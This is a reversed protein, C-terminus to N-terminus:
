GALGMLTLTLTQPTLIRLISFKKATQTGCVRIKSLRVQVLGLVELASSFCFKRLKGDWDQLVVSRGYIGAHIEMFDTIGTQRTPQTTSSGEVYHQDTKQQCSLWNSPLADSSTQSFMLEQPVSLAGLCASPM